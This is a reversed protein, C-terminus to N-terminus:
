LKKQMFQPFGAYRIGISFEAGYLYLDKHGTNIIISNAIGGQISLSNTLKYEIFATLSVSHQPIGTPTREDTSQEGATWDWVIDHEGKILYEAKIDVSLKEGFSLWSGFMLTITDRGNPHGIWRYRSGSVPNAMMKRYWISAALPSNDVYLYPDTYVFELYFLATGKNFPYYYEIGALYGLANPDENTESPIKFENVIFQGYVSVNKVTLWQFDISFLMSDLKGNGWAPYDYESFYNHMFMLPSLYRLQIPSDGTIMQETIGFSFKKDASVDLRHIYTYRNISRKQIGPYDDFNIISKDVMSQNFSLPIQSVVMSYKLFSNFLSLRAFDYYDPTDSLLLNGTHAYGFSLRDRGIQVNWWDGGLSLFAKFPRGGGDWFDFTFPINTNIYSGEKREGPFGQYAAEYHLQIFNMFNISIPIKILEPRDLEPLVWETQENTRVSFNGKLILSGSFAVNDSRFLSAPFLEKKVKEYIEQGWVSLDDKVISNLFKYIEYNSMPPTFSFIVKNAELALTRLDNYIEHGASFMVLKEKEDAFIPTEGFICIIFVIILVIFIKRSNIFKLM